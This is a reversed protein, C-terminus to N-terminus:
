QVVPAFMVNNLETTQTVHLHGSGVYIYLRICESCLRQKNTMEVVSVNAPLHTQANTLRNM